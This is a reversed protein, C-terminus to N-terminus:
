SILSSPNIDEQFSAGDYPAQTRWNKNNKYKEKRKKQKRREWRKRKEKRKNM